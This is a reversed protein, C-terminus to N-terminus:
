DISHRCTCFFFFIFPDFANLLSTKMKTNINGVTNGNGGKTIKNIFKRYFILVKPNQNHQIRLRHHIMVIIKCHEVFNNISVIKDINLVDLHEHVTLVHTLTTGKIFFFFFLKNYAHKAVCLYLFRTLASM